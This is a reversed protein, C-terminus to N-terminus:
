SLCRFLFLVTLFEFLEGLGRAVLTTFSRTLNGFAVLTIVTSTHPLTAPYELSDFPYSVPGTVLSQPPTQQTHNHSLVREGM